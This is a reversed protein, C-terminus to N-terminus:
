TTFHKRPDFESLARRLSTAACETEFCLIGSGTRAETRAFLTV